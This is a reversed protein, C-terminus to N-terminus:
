KQENFSGSQWNLHISEFFVMVNGTMQKGRGTNQKQLYLLFHSLTQLSVNHSAQSGFRQLLCFIFSSRKNFVSHLKKDTANFM